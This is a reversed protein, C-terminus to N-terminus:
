PGGRPQERVAPGVHDGCAGPQRAPGFGDAASGIGSRQGRRHAGDRDSDVLQEQGYRRRGARARRRANGTRHPHDADTRHATRVHLCSVVPTRCAATVPQQCCRPRSRDAARADSRVSGAAGSGPWGRSSRARCASASARLAAGARTRSRECRVQDSVAPRRPRRRPRMSAFTPASARSSSASASPGNHHDPMREATRDRQIQSGCARIQDRRQHQEIGRDAQVATPHAVDGVVHEGRRVVGVALLGAGFLRVARPALDVRVFQVAFEVLM